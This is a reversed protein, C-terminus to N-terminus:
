NPEDNQPKSGGSLRANQVINEYTKGVWNPSKWMDELRRQDYNGGANATKQRWDAPLPQGALPQVQAAIPNPRKM